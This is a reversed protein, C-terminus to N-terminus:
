YRLARADTRWELLLLTADDSLRGQQHALLAHVVRRMTEPAPLDAAFHRGLLDLLRQQGFFEGEPSRAELVGDTLLLVRDGPELHEEGIDFGARQVDIPLALGLPPAPPCALERVFRGGRLLLPPPHGANTWQLVGTESALEVLVATAFQNGGFATLMEEHIGTATAALDAGSRRLSRYAAVAVTALQSSRLGHGMGDFVAARTLGADVAFDLTDGAVEYAPELAGAVTVQETSFTLPPLLSWQLEAALGMPARRRLRVITDGYMTKTVLMEAVLAVFRRLRVGFAGDPIDQADAASVVACMVGLRETGDILPLWVRRRDRDLEQTLVDMHQFSRGAITGDITLVDTAAAPAAGRFPVLVSQ